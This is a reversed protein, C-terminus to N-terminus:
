APGRRLTSTSGGSNKAAQVLAQWGSMQSAMDVVIKLRQGGRQAKYSPMWNAHESNRSITTTPPGGGGVEFTFQQLAGDPHVPLIGPYKRTATGIMAYEKEAGDLYFNAATDVEGGNDERATVQWTNPDFEAYKVLRIDERHIIREWTLGLPGIDRLRQVRDFQHTTIDRVSCSCVLVLEAADIKEAAVGNSVLGGALEALIANATPNLRFMYRNFTVLGREADISFGETVSERKNTNTWYNAAGRNFVGHVRPPDVITQGLDDRRTTLIGDLLKFYRLAEVSRMAGGLGAVREFAPFDVHELGPELFKPGNLPLMTIRYMRFVCSKALNRYEDPTLTSIKIGPFFIGLAPNADPVTLNWFYPPPSVSWGAAPKYSLENIPKIEGWPEQGVAELAFACTYATEAGVVALRSPREPLDIAPTFSEYDIDPLDAGFGVQRIVVDDSFPRWVVRCGFPEVLEALAQAPNAWVWDVAPLDQDNNIGPLDGIEFVPEGM